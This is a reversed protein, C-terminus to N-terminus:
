DGPAGVGDATQNSISRKVESDPYSHLRDVAEICNKVMGKIKEESRGSMRGNAWNQTIHLARLGYQDDLPCTISLLLNILMSKGDGNRGLLVLSFTDGDKLNSLENQIDEIQRLVRESLDDSENDSGDRGSLFPNSLQKFLDFCPAYSKCNDGDDQAGEADNDDDDDNDDCDRCFQDRLQKLLGLVRDRPTADKPISLRVTDLEECFEEDSSEEGLYKSPQRTSPASIKQGPSELALNDLERRRKKSPTTM